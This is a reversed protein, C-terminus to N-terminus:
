FPGLDLVWMNRFFSRLTWLSRTRDFVEPDRVWPNGLFYGGPGSGMLEGLPGLIWSMPSWGLIEFGADLVWAARIKCSSRQLAEEAGVSLNSM